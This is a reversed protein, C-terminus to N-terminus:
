EESLESVAQRWSNYHPTLTQKLNPFPDLDNYDRQIKGKLYEIKGISILYPYDKGTFHSASDAAALIKAEITEPKTDTNRHALTAHFVGQVLQDSGDLLRLFSQAELASRLAHDKPGTLLHGIDHLWVSVLVITENAYPYEALLHNAWKEVELVHEEFHPSLPDPTHKLTNLFHLKAKLVFDIEM